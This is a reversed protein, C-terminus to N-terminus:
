EAAVNMPITVDYGAGTQDRLQLSFELAVPLDIPGNFAGGGIALVFSMHSLGDASPDGTIQPDGPLAGASEGNLSVEAVVDIPLIGNRIIPGSSAPFDRSTGTSTGTPVLTMGTLIGNPLNFEDAAFQTKSEIGLFAAMGRLENGYDSISAADPRAFTILFNPGDPTHRSGFLGAITAGLDPFMANPDGWPVSGQIFDAVEWEPAGVRTSSVNALPAGLEVVNLQLSYTRGGSSPGGSVRVYYTGASLDEAFGAYEPPIIEACGSGARDRSRSGLENGAADLLTLTPELHDCSTPEVPDEARAYLAAGEPVIVAYLDVDDPQTMTGRVPVGDGMLPIASAIEDNPELDEYGLEVVRTETREDVDNKVRLKVVTRGDTDFTYTGSETRPFGPAAGDNISLRIDTANSTAWTVTITENAGSFAEPSLTFTDVSPPLETNIVLMQEAVDAETPGNRASLILTASEGEVAPTQYAGRAAQASTWARIVNGDMTIQVEEAGTTAWQLNIRDGRAVTTVDQMMGGVVAVAAFRDIAPPNSVVTVTAQAEVQQGGAQAQLTYTTTTEPTVRISGNRETTPDGVPGVDEIIVKVESPNAGGLKWQLESSEGRGISAPVAEFSIVSIGGVGVQISQSKPVGDTGTATLTFTTALDVPMSSTEGSAAGKSLVTGGPQQVITVGSAADKVSWTLTVPNGADVTDSSAAFSEIVAPLEEEGGCGALAVAVAAPLLSSVFRRM